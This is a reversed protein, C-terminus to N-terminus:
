RYAQSVDNMAVGSSPVKVRPSRLQSLLTFCSTKSLFDGLVIVLREFDKSSRIMEDTEKTFCFTALCVGTCGEVHRERHIGQFLGMSFLFRPDTLPRFDRRAFGTRDKGACLLVM